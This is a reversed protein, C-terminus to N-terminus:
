RFRSAQVRRTDARDRELGDLDAAVDDSVITITGSSPTGIIYPGAAESGLSVSENAELATDDIPVIPVSSM